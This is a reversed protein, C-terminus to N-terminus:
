EVVELDDADRLARVWDTNLWVLWGELRNAQEMAYAILRGEDRKLKDLEAQTMSYPQIDNVSYARDIRSWIYVVKLTYVVTDTAEYALLKGAKFDDRLARCRGAYELLRAHHLAHYFTDFVEESHAYDASKAVYKAVEVIANTGAKQSRCRQLYVDMISQDRMADRWDQLLQDRSIYSRGFYGPSVYVLVHIHPHYTDAVANYTIEMKRIYDSWVKYRDRKMMRAWARNMELMKARLQDAPINPVTLTIMLMIKGEESLKSSIAGLCQAAKLTARWACGPCLRQGCFFGVDLKKHERTEDELFVLYDGCHLFNGYAADSLHKRMWQATEDNTQRKKAIQELLDKGQGKGSKTNHHM